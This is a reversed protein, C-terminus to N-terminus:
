CGTIESCIMEGRQYFMATIGNYLRPLLGAGHNRMDDSPILTFSFSVYKGGFPIYFVRKGFDKIVEIFM